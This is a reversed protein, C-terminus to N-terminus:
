ILAAMTVLGEFFTEIKLYVLPLVSSLFWMSAALTVFGEYCIFSKYVMHINVGPFSWILATLTVLCVWSTGIKIPMQTHCMSHSKRYFEIRVLSTLGTVFICDM